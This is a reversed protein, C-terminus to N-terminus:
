DLAESLNLLVAPQTLHILYGKGPELASLSSFQPPLDPFYSLAEVDFGRIEDYAGDLSALATEVPVPATHLYSILSWGADLFRIATADAPEGEVTLTAAASLRIWYGHLVDITQLTNLEDAQDPRFVLATEGEITSVQTYLGAIPLLVTEIDSDEPM